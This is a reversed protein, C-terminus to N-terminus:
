ILKLARKRLPKRQIDWYFYCIISVPLRAPSSPFISFGRKREKGLSTGLREILTKQPSLLNPNSQPARPTEEREMLCRARMLRIGLRREGWLVSLYRSPVLRSKGRGMKGRAKKEREGAERRCWSAEASRHPKLILPHVWCLKILPPESTWGRLSKCVMKSM